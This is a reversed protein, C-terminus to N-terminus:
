CEANRACSGSRNHVPLNSSNSRLVAYINGQTKPAIAGPYDTPTDAYRPPDVWNAFPYPVLAYPPRIKGDVPGLGRNEELMSREVPNTRGETSTANRVEACHCPELGMADAAMQLSHVRFKM